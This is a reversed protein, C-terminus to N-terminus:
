IESIKNQTNLRKLAKKSIHKIVIYKFDINPLFTEIYKDTDSHMLEVELRNRLVILYDRRVSFCLAISSLTCYM